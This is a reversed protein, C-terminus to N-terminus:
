PFSRAGIAFPLIRAINRADDIGRHHTGHLPLGLRRLAAAMGFRRKTGLQRSFAQKVNLHDEGFPLEARHFIADQKFQGKDYNGWSSFLPAGDDIFAALKELATAFGPADAVDARTISTLETCFPTLEPHRVPKVFTQFEAKAAFTEGDVLVAGIEIIEMERKPVAGANDCTAELDIVLYDRSEMEERQPYASTTGTARVPIRVLTKM